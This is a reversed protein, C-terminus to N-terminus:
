SGSAQAEAEAGTVMKVSPQEEFDLAGGNAVQWVKSTCAEFPCFGTVAAFSIDQGINVQWKGGFHEIM